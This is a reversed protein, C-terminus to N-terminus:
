RRGPGPAPQKGGPVVWEPGPRSSRLGVDDLLGERSVEVTIPAPSSAQASLLFEGVVGLGLGVLGAVFSVAALLQLLVWRRMDIEDIAMSTGALIAGLLLLAVSVIGFFLLPRPGCGLHLKLAVMDALSVPFRKWGFKSRGYTRPYWRTVVEKIRCDRAVLQALLFRHWDSRLTLGLLKDRRVLKIWNADRLRVGFLYRNLFNYIGSAFLKGDGRCERRGAVVDTNADIARYLAPIDEAPRSEMDSPLFCVWTGRALTISERIWATMGQRVGHRVLRIPVGRHGRLFARVAEGTGDTSGDDIFLIEASVELDEIAQLAESLFPVVNGAENHATTVISLEPSIGPQVPLNDIM